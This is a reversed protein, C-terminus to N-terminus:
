NKLFQIRRPLIEDQSRSRPAAQMGTFRPVPFSAGRVPSIDPKLLIPFEFPLYVTLNNVNSCLFNVIRFTMKIVFAPICNKGVMSSFYIPVLPQGPESQLLPCTLSSIVGACRCIKLPSQGYTCGLLVPNSLSNHYSGYTPAKGFRKGDQGSVISTPLDFICVHSFVVSLIKANTLVACLDDVTKVQESANKKHTPYVIPAPHASLSV